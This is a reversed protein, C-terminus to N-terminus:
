YQYQATLSAGKRSFERAANNSDKAYYFLSSQLLWRHAPAYTITLSASKLSDDLADGVNSFFALSQTFDRSEYRLEPQVTVKDTVAWRPSISIGKNISYANSLDDIIGTERWVATSISLKGSYLYDMVIRLNYGSFDRVPLIDHKRQVQGGLFQLRTKGTFRWDIKAKLEDQTYDSRIAIPGVIQFSPIHGQIRRAQLGVTSNSSALYDIGFESIDETRNGTRQSPLDYHSDFRSLGVRTQWSPHFRWTGDAYYRKQTRVNKVPQNFDTFPALSYVYTSGLNGQLHNGLQWGWNGRLDRGNTDLQSFENYNVRNLALSGTVKQRGFLKDIALGAQVTRSTDSLGSLGFARGVDESPLGFVNSDYSYTVGVFPHFAGTSVQAQVPAVMCIGLATAVAVLRYDTWDFLPAHM